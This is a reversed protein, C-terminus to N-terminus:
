EGNNNVSDPDSGTVSNTTNLLVRVPMNMESIESPKKRTEAEMNISETHKSKDNIEMDETDSLTLAYRKVEESIESSKLKNQFKLVESINRFLFKDVTRLSDMIEMISLQVMEYQYVTDYFQQPISHIFIIAKYIDGEYKIGISFLLNYISDRIISMKWRYKEAVTLTTNQSIGIKICKSVFYSKSQGNKSSETSIQKILDEDLSCSFREKKDM